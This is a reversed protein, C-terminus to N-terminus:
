YSTVIFIIVLANMQTKLIEYLLFLLFTVVRFAKRVWGMGRCVCVYFQVKFNKYILILCTYILFKNGCNNADYSEDYSMRFM